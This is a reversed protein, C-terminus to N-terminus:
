SPTLTRLLRGWISPKGLPEMIRPRQAVLSQVAATLHLCATANHLWPSHVSFSDMPGQAKLAALHASGLDMRINIAIGLLGWATPSSPKSFSQWDQAESGSAAAAPSHHCLLTASVRAM